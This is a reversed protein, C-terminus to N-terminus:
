RSEKIGVIHRLLRHVEKVSKLYFEATSQESKGVRITLGKNKLATFADEDTKDDGIYISQVNEEKLSAKIRRLVWLVAKGKDWDLFPKIEMVKKGKSVKIDRSKQYPSCVEAIIKKIETIDKKKALRYHVSLSFNKNEVFVGERLFFQRVLKIYVLDLVQRLTYPLFYVHPAKFGSDIEFGHNGAYTLYNIGVKERVDELSRGSIIAVTCDDISSLRILVTRVKPSLNAQAPTKAIPTLTGDYDLFIIIKKAALNYKIRDWHDYLYEM